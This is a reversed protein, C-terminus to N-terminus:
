KDNGKDKGREPLYKKREAKEGREGRKRRERLSNLKREEEGSEDGGLGGRLHHRNM